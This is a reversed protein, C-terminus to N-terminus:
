EDRALPVVRKTVITLDDEGKRRIALALLHRESPRMSALQWADADDDLRPDFSIRLPSEPPVHLSFHALPIALGMGRAKIYSEKLTWYTFFRADQEAEPLARLARV